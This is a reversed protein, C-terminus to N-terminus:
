ANQQVTGHALVPLIPVLLDPEGHRAQIAGVISAAQLSCANFAGHLLSDRSNATYVSLQFLQTQEARRASTKRLVQYSQRLQVDGCWLVVCASQQPSNTNARAPCSGELKASLM